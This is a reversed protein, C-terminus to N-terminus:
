SAFLAIGSQIVWRMVYNLLVSFADLRSRLHFLICIDLHPCIEQETVFRPLVMLLMFVMCFANDHFVMCYKAMVHFNICYWAYKMNCVTLFRIDLIALLVPSGSFFRKFKDHLTM